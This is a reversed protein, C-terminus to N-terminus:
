PWVQCDRVILKAFAGVLLEAAAPWSGRELRFVQSSVPSSRVVGPESM